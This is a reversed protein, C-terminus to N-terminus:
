PEDELEEDPWREPEVFGLELADVGIKDGGSNGGRPAGSFALFSMEMDADMKWFAECIFSAIRFEM